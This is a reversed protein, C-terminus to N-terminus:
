GQRLVEQAQQVIVTEVDDNAFNALADPAGDDTVIVDIQDLDCLKAFAVKGLKSSDATVIRRQSAAIAARKVQAEEVNYDTIGYEQHVGAVGMVFVDFVLDDFARTALHGVLSRERNRAQGGTLLLVIGPEDALIVAARLNSTLVTLNQRGTLARAVEVATTGVDLIVTEGEHLLSAVRQGIRAKAEANTDKRLVYPPEYSLSTVSVAGGRTRKLLGQRELAELDRRITMDSVKTLQSLEGVAVRSNADLLRMITARREGASLKMDGSQMGNIREYEVNHIDQNVNM